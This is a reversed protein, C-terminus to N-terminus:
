LFRSSTSLSVADGQVLKRMKVRKRWVRINNQQQLRLGLLKSVVKTNTRNYFLIITAVLHLPSQQDCTGNGANIRPAIYVRQSYISVNISTDSLDITDVGLAIIMEQDAFSKGDIFLAVLDYDALSREQFQRLKEASAKIFRRSVTSSSLGFAEPVTEACAEYSRTSIGKLMRLLLGEDMRRPSQFQHYVDLSVEENKEVDRVRPVSIPLKQDSLYVSGQQSGWRRNATKAGKRSNKPGALRSVENQLEESVAELGLPILAQILEIRMDLAKLEEELPSSSRFSEQDIPKVELPNSSVKKM